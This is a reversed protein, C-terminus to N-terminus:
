KRRLLVINSEFLIDFRHLIDIGLVSPVPPCPIGDITEKDSVSLDGLPYTFLGSDSLFYITCRQLLYGQVRGGIGGFIQDKPLKRIHIGFRQADNWSLQTITAGTDVLFSFPASIHITESTLILPTYYKSDNGDRTGFILILPTYYKSDNGDRTGFIFL